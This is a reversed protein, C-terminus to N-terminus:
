KAPRIRSLPAEPVLSKAMRLRQRSAKPLPATAQKKRWAALAEAGTPTLRVHLIGSPKTGFEAWGRQRLWDRTEEGFQGTKISAANEWETLSMREMARYAQDEIKNM